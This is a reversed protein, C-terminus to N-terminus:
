RVRVGFAELLKHQELWNVVDPTLRSLNAGQTSTAEKFFNLVNQPLDKADLDDWAQRCKGILLEAADYESDKMPARAAKASVGDILERFSEVKRRLAPLRVLVNLLDNSLRPLQAQVHGHWARDSSQQLSVSIKNLPTLIKPQIDKTELIVSPEKSISSLLQNLFHRIGEASKVEFEVEVGRGRLQRASESSLRLKALAEEFQVARSRIGEAQSAIAGLASIEAVDISLRESRELLTMKVM